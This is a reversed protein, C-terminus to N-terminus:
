NKDLNKNYLAIYNKAQLTLNYKRLVTERCKLRLKNRNQDQNKTWLIGEALSHADGTSALYGNVQHEVMDPIGGVNFGVVPTGCALSELVINPLNDELSPIVTVDAMSYIMALESDKEVYDFCITQYELHQMAIENSRGFVALIINDQKHENKLVDLAQLLYRFGKRENNLSDAGFLIVFSNDPIKLSERITTQPYHKFVDTPVANPIVHIPFSGLLFSKKACDAIWRSPSIITIDIQRYANKKIKWIANSLDNQEDSGLQPCSECHEEYKKCDGAYHCGGTFPNMDHLTWVIKKNKLFDINDSINLTGSIWHLNIIDANQLEPIDKFKTAAWPISFMELGSPRSPYQSLAQHNLAQFARWEPSIFKENKASPHAQSLLTTKDRWKGINQVFFTNNEDIRTLGDHLRLAATGAGGFDQMCFQAIVPKKQSTDHTCANKTNLEYPKKAEMFLSDPKRVSGDPEIDLLYSNFDPIQSEDAKCVKIDEFGAEQLLKGLSYRDYMWQHIEGSLRFQAIKPPDLSHDVKGNLHKTSDPNSRIRAISDKVESGLREIVFDEAPMPNQRWYELMAGGSHNRVMQDFLELMIWDYRKRAEEDGKVSKELLILYLRAISELDPVVVRITGSPKLVRFCDKLFVPAYNKPFHELLHSHYIAEFSEAGFPLGKCLDHAIVDPGDSKFDVNTWAPHHRQGCGLNLLRSMAADAPIDPKRFWVGTSDIPLSATPQPTKAPPTIAALRTRILHDFIALRSEVNHENSCRKQGAEAISNRKDPNSLLWEIQKLCDSNDTYTVAEIGPKFLKPMNFKWDTLLCSGVGTAEYMRFNSAFMTSSDAHVNLVIRSDKLVQLMNRGFLPPRRIREITDHKTRESSYIAIDFSSAIDALLDARKDHFDSGGKLMGSFCIDHKMPQDKLFSLVSRDFWHNLFYVDDRFKSAGVVSEPACSLLIDVNRFFPEFPKPMTSGVWGIVLKISSVRKKLDQLFDYSWHHLWVVDPRMEEVQCLCIEEMDKRDLRPKDFRRLGKERAWARQLPESNWALEQASYGFPQLSRAFYGYWFFGDQGLAEQQQEFSAEVLEPNENYFYHLYEPYDTHIKLFKLM